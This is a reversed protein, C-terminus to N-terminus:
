HQNFPKVAIWIEGHRWVEPSTTLRPLNIKKKAVSPLVPHAFNIAWKAIEEGKKRVCARKSKSRNLSSDSNARQRQVNCKSAQGLVNAVGWSDLCNKSAAQAAEVFQSCAFWLPTFFFNQQSKFPADGLFLMFKQWSNFSCDISESATLTYFPM